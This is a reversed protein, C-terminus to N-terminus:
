EVLVGAAKLKEFRADYLKNLEKQLVDKAKLIDVEKQLAEIAIRKGKPTSLKDTQISKVLESIKGFLDKVFPYTANVIEAGTNIAAVIDIPALGALEEQKLQKM